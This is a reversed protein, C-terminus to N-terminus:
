HFSAGIGPCRRSYTIAPATGSFFYDGGTGGDNTKFVRDRRQGAVTIPADIDISHYSNLTLTASTNWSLASAVIIDGAGPSQTGYGSAAGSTTQETVSTGSNLANDISTAASANITLNEPDVKWAAATNAQRSAAQSRFRIAPRRSLAAAPKDPQM